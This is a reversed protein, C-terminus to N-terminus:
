PNPQDLAWTVGFPDRLQGFRDGWFMEQIPMVITAGADVARKWWGDIDRLSLALSFGQPAQYPMGREPCIDGLMLSGGNIYLHVHMTRGQEDVPQAAALEAGFARQYFEAAKLAGDVMLYAIVGGKVPATAPTRTQTAQAMQKEKQLTNAM